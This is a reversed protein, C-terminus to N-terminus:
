CKGRPRIEYMHKVTAHVTHLRKVFGKVIVKWFTEVTVSVSMGIGLSTSESYSAM